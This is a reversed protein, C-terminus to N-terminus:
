VWWQVNFCPSCKTLIIKCVTSLLTCVVSLQWKFLLHAIGLTKYRSYLWHSLWNLKTVLFLNVMVTRFNDANNIWANLTIRLRCIGECVRKPLAIPSSFVSFRTKHVARRRQLSLGDVEFYGKLNVSCHRHLSMFM